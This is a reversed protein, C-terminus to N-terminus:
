YFMWLFRKLLSRQPPKLLVVKESNGTKITKESEPFFKVPDTYIIDFIYNVTREVNVSTYLSVADYSIVDHLKPDFKMIDKLFKEKFQKTSGLAFDCGNLIPKVLGKLYEEAGITVSNLSSM